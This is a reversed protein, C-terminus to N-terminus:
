LDYIVKSNMAISNVHRFAIAIRKNEVSSRMM